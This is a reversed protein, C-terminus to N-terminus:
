LIKVEKMIGENMYKDRYKLHGSSNKTLKRREYRAKFETVRYRYVFAMNEEGTNNKEMEKNKPM